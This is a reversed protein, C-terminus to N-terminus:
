LTRRPVPVSRRQHPMQALMAWFGSLDDVRVQDASAAFTLQHPSFTALGLAGLRRLDARLEDLATPSGRGGVLVAVEEVRYLPRQRANRGEPPRTYNRREAMENLAFYVRLQRRTM